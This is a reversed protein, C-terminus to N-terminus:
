SAAAEEARYIRNLLHRLFSDLLVGGDVDPEFGEEKLTSTEPHLGPAPDHPDDLAVTLLLLALEPDGTPALSVGAVRSGNVLIASDQVGVDVYPPGLAVLADSLAGCALALAQAPPEPVVVVAAELVEADARWFVSGPEAASLAARAADLPAGTVPRSSFPPVM